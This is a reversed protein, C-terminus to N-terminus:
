YKTNRLGSRKGRRKNTALKVNVGEKPLQFVVKARTWRESEKEEQEGMVMLSTLMLLM